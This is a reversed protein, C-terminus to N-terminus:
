EVEAEQQTVRHKKLLGKLLGVKETAKEGFHRWFGGSRQSAKKWARPCQSGPAESGEGLQRERINAQHTSVEDELDPSLYHSKFDSNRLQGANKRGSSECWWQIRRTASSM